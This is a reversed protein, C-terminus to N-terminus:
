FPTLNCLWHILDFSGLAAKPQDKSNVPNNWWKAWPRSVSIPNRTQSNKTDSKIRGKQHKREETNPTSQGDHKCIKRFEQGPLLSSLMETPQADEPHSTADICRGHGPADDRVVTLVSLKLPGIPRQESVGADSCCKRDEAKIGCEWVCNRLVVQIKRFFKWCQLCM